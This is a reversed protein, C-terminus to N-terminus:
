LNMRGRSRRVTAPTHKTTNNIYGDIRKLMISEMQPQMKEYIPAIAPRPPTVIEAGVPLKAKGYLRRQRHTTVQTAGEQFRWALRRVKRDDIWGIDVRRRNKDHRYRILNKLKGGAVRQRRAGARHLRRLAATAQSTEPWSQGAPAGSRMGTKIERQLVYGLHRLARNYENPLERALRRLVPGAQDLVTVNTEGSTPIPRM